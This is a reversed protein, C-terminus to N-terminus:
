GLDFVPPHDSALVPGAIDGPHAEAATAFTIETGHVGDASAAFNGQVFAGTFTVHQTHTGDGLTLVGTTANYSETFSASTFDVGRVDVTDDAAWGVLKGSYQGPNHLVLAATGVYDINQTWVNSLDLHAAGELAFTGTMNGTGTLTVAGFIQASLSGDLVGSFNGTEIELTASTGGTNTVIGAGLLDIIETTFGALNLTAGSAVTTQSANSFLFTFSSDGGKLTGAAVDVTYDGVDTISSGAPTHWVITGANASDGFTVAAGGTADLSWPTAPNNSLNLVTSTAAAFTSANSMQLANGISASLTTLLEGGQMMIAGTGLDQFHDISLIGAAIATGGTYTEAHDMTTTGTGLFAVEGTGSITTTIAVANSHDYYLTGDDTINGVVSGTTGGDGLSLAGEVTTGKTYTNAGTLILGGDATLSAAGSIIGSFDGDEVLISANASDTMTGAGLLDRVNGAFGNWNLTAGADITTSAANGLMFEMAHDDGAKLTGAHVDIALALFVSEGGAELVVTGTNGGQGFTLTSTADQTFALQDTADLILTKGAAAAVTTDDDLTIVPLMLTINDTALLEGSHITLNGSGFAASNGASIEGGSLTTPGSYSEAIGITYNAGGEYTVTGAGSIANAQTATGTRDYILAGNDAIAGAVSGHSSDIGLQLTAGSDITTNEAYTNNGSLVLTGSGVEVSLDDQIIGSFNGGNFIAISTAAGSDAITGAGQLDIIANSFGHEDLRAGSDITTESANDFLFGISDDGAQLIGKSIEITHHGVNTVTSGAPTDWIITGDNAGQGFVVSTPNTANLSWPTVTNLTLVTADAAAIQVNGSMEFQNAITQSALSLFEGGAFTFAATGLAAANGVQLIGANETVGGTITNAGRLIARGSDIRFIGADNLSGTASEDLLANASNIDVSNAFSAGTMNVTYSGAASILVDTSSNPVGASWDAGVNWNGTLGIRWSTTTVRLV